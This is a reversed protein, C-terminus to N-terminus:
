FYIHKGADVYDVYVQLASGVKRLAVLSLKVHMQVNARHMHVIFGYKYTFKVLHYIESCHYFLLNDLVILVVVSLEEHAVNIWTVNRLALANSSLSHLSHYPNLAQKLLGHVDILSGM